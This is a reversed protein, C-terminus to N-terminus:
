RGLVSSLVLFGESNFTCEKSLEKTCMSETHNQVYYIASNAGVIYTFVVKKFISPQINIYFCQKLIKLQDM